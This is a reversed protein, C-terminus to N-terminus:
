RRQSSRTIKKQPGHYDKKEYISTTQENTNVLPSIVAILQTIYEDSISGRELNKVLTNILQRIAKGGKVLHNAAHDKEAAGMVQWAPVGLAVCIAFFTTVSLGQLGREFRSLAPADIAIGLSAAKGAVDELTRYQGKRLMHIIKGVETEINM